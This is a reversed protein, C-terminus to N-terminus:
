QMTSRRGVPSLLARQRSTLEPMLFRTSYKSTMAAQPGTFRRRPIPGTFRANVESGAEILAKVTAAGNPFHGPWDTVVHLLTRSVRNDGCKGEDERGVIRAMALGPNEALLRKLQPVDGTHIAKFVAGALPSDKSIFTM